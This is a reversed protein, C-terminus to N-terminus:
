SSPSFHRLLADVALLYGQKKFGMVTGICYPALVSNHRQQEPRALLNSLHVEVLPTMLCQLRDALALSTHSWAGPNLVIGQADTTTLKELYLHESNSQFFELDARAGVEKEIWHNMEVLTETGYLSPDRKGLMDLNVGNAILISIKLM